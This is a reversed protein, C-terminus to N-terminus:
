RKRTIGAWLVEFGCTKYMQAQEPELKMFDMTAEAQATLMGAIFPEPLDVFLRQAIADQSMAQIEAFPTMGAMQSQCTLGEWVKMKKLVVFQTPNAIGWDVYHDWVHQMRARVSSKRPFGAMLADALDLKIQCYLANVLEDKSKFYTFLTGEAVGAAGTIAATPAALGREAFIETAAALITNRKDDSKPRAM